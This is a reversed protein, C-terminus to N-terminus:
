PLVPMLRKPGEARRTMEYPPSTTGNAFHTVCHLLESSQIRCDLRVVVARDTLVMEVRTEDLRAIYGQYRAPRGNDVPSDWTVRREVDILVVGVYNPKSAATIHWQGQLSASAAQAGFAVLCLTATLGKGM